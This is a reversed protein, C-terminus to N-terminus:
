KKKLSHFITKNSFTPAVVILSLPYDPHYINQCINISPSFYYIYINIFLLFLFHILIAIPIFLHPPFAPDKNSESGRTLGDILINLGSMVMSRGLVSEGEGFIIYINYYYYFLCSMVM